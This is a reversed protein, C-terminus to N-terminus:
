TNKKEHIHHLRHAFTSQSLDDNFAIIVLTITVASVHIKAKKDIYDLKRIKKHIFYMLLQTRLYAVFFLFHRTEEMKRNNKCDM